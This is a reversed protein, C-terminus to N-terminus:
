PSVELLLYSLEKEFEIPLTNTIVRPLCRSTGPTIYTRDNCCVTNLTFRRYPLFPGERRERLYFFLVAINLFGKVSHVAIFFTSGLLEKM